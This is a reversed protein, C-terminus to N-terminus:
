PNPIYGGNIAMHNYIYAGLGSSGSGNYRAYNGVRVTGASSAMNFGAGGVNDSGANYFDIDCNNNFQGLSNCGYAFSNFIKEGRVNHYEFLRMNAKTWPLITSNWRTQPVTVWPSPWGDSMVM